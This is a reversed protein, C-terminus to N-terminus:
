QRGAVYGDLGPRDDVAAHVRAQVNREAVQPFPVREPRPASVAAMVSLDFRSAEDSPVAFARQQARDFSHEKAHAAIAAPGHSNFDM